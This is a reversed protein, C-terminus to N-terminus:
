KNKVNKLEEKLQAARERAAPTNNPGPNRHTGVDMKLASIDAKVEALTRTQESANMKKGEQTLVDVRATSAQQASADTVCWLLSFGFLGLSMIKWKM